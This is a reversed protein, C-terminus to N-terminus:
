GASVTTAAHLAGLASPFYHEMWTILDNAVPAAFTVLDNRPYRRLDLRSAHLFQRGLAAQPTGREAPPAYVQDGVLAYGLAALHARIQHTRGTVPRVELLTFEGEAALLRVLTTSQQGDAGVICRRREAPDRQLPGELLLEDEGLTALAFPL